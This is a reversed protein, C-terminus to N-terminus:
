RRGRPPSIPRPMPHGTLVQTRQHTVRIRCPLAGPGMCTRDRVGLWEVQDPELMWATANDANHTEKMFYASNMDFDAADANMQACADAPPPPTGEPHGCYDEDHILVYKRGNNPIFYRATVPSVHFAASWESVDVAFELPFQSMSLFDQQLQRSFITLTPSPEGNTPHFYFGGLFIGGQLDIWYFGKGALFPGQKGAAILYRGDLIEIPVTSGDLAEEMAFSLPKDVGYHYTTNPVEKKLLSKFQKDKMLEGSPKGAFSNLFTLQDAPIPNQFAIPPPPAPESDSPAPSPATGSQQGIASPLLLSAFLVQAAIICSYM